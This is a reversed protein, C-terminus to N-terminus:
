FTSLVPLTKSSRGAPPGAAHLPSHSCDCDNVPCPEGWANKEWCVSSGRPLRLLWALRGQALPRSTQTSGSRLICCGVPSRQIPPILLIRLGPNSAYTYSNGQSLGLRPKMRSILLTALSAGPTAHPILHASKLFKLSSWPFLHKTATYITM